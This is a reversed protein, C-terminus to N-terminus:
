PGEQGLLRCQSYRANVERELRLLEDEIEPVWHWSNRCITVEQLLPLSCCARRFMTYNGDLIRYLFMYQDHIGRGHPVLHVKQLGKFTNVMSDFDQLMAVRLSSIRNSNTTGIAWSFPRPNYVTFTNHSYYIWASELYIQRCTFAIALHSRGTAKYERDYVILQKGGNKECIGCPEVDVVRVMVLKYIM